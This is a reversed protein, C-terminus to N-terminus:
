RCPRGSTPTTSAAWSCIHILSLAELSWKDPFFSYGLRTISDASSFSIVTVFVVPLICLLALLAFLLSFLINTTPSVRNFAELGGLHTYSVPNKCDASIASGTWPLSPAYMGEKLGSPGELANIYTYGLKRDM